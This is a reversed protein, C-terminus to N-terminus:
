SGERSGIFANQAEGLRNSGLKIAEGITIAHMYKDYRRYAATGERKPNPQTFKISTTKPIALISLPEMEPGEDNDHADPADEADLTVPPSPNYDNRTRGERVDETIAEEAAEALIDSDSNDSTYEIRVDDSDHDTNSLMRLADDAANHPIRNESVDLDPTVSEVTKKLGPLIKPEIPKMDPGSQRLPTKTPDPNDQASPLPHLDEQAMCERYSVHHLVDEDDLIYVQGFCAKNHCVFRGEYQRPETKTPPQKNHKVDVREGPVWRPIPPNSSKFLYRAPAVFGKNGRSPTENM